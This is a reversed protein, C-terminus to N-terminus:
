LIQNSARSLKAADKENKLPINKKFKLCTEELMEVNTGQYFVNLTRLPPDAADHDEM